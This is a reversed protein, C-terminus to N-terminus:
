NQNIVAETNTGEETGIDALENLFLDDEGINDYEKTIAKDPNEPDPATTMFVYQVTDGEKLYTSDAAGTEDGNLTYSWFYRIGEHTTEYYAGFRKLQVRAGSENLEIKVDENDMLTKILDVVTPGETSDGASKVEVDKDIIYTQGGVVFKVHVKTKVEPTACSGLLLSTLLSAILLLATIIKKM